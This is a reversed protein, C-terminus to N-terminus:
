LQIRRGDVNSFGPQASAFFFLSMQHEQTGIHLLEQLLSAGGQFSQKEKGSEQMNASCM